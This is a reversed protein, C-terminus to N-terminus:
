AMIDVTGEIQESAVNLRVDAKTRASAGNQKCKGVVVIVVIVIVV